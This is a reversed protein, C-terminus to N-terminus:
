VAPLWRAQLRPLQAMPCVSPRVSSRIAIDSLAGGVTHRPMILPTVMIVCEPPQKGRTLSKRVLLGVQVDM